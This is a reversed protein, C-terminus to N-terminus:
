QREGESESSREIIPYDRLLDLITEEPRDKLHRDFFAATLASAAALVAEPESDGGIGALERLSRIGIFLGQDTFKMHSSGRITFLRGSSAAVESVGLLNRTATRAAEEYAEESGYIERMIQRDLESLTAFPELHGKREEFLRIHFEDNAAMLFPAGPGAGEEPTMYVFGDLDIAAKVRPETLALRYAAAGGVSHGVVGVRDLDMREHFLNGSTGANMETLRDLVFAADDAMIRSIIAAPEVVQFDTTAERHTAIRDPFETAASVYTHDIAVVIYGHSAL